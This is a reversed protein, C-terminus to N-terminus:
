AGVCHRPCLRHHVGGQEIVHVACQGESVGVHEVPEHLVFLDYHQVLASLLPVCRGFAMLQGHADARRQVQGRVAERVAGPDVVLAKRAGFVPGTEHPQGRLELGDVQHPQDLVFAQGQVDRHVVGQGQVGGHRLPGRVPGHPAHREEVGVRIVDPAVDVGEVVDVVAEQAVVAHGRPRHPAGKTGRVGAAMEHDRQVRPNM